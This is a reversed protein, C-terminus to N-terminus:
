TVVFKEPEWYKGMEIYNIQTFTLHTTKTQDHKEKIFKRYPHKIRAAMAEDTM